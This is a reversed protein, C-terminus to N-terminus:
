ASSRHVTDLSSYARSHSQNEKCSDSHSICGMLYIPRQKLCVCVRVHGDSQFLWRLWCALGHCSWHEGVVGHVPHKRRPLARATNQPSPNERGLKVATVLEFLNRRFQDGTLTELDGLMFRPQTGTGVSSPRARVCLREGSPTMGQKRSPPFNLLYCKEGPVNWIAAHCVHALDHIQVAPPLHLRGCTGGHVAPPCRPGQWASLAARGPVGETRTTSDIGLLWCLSVRQSQVAWAVMTHMWSSASFDAQGIAHFNVLTQPM